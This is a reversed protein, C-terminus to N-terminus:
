ITSHTLSHVMHTRWVQFSADWQTRYEQQGGCTEHSQQGEEGRACEFKFSQGQRQRQENWTARLLKDAWDQTTNPATPTTQHPQSEVPDPNVHSQRPVLNLSPQDVLSLPRSRIGGNFNLSFQTGIRKSWGFLGMKSSM